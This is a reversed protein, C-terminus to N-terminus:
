LDTTISATECTTSLLKKLELVEKQYAIILDKKISKNSSPM